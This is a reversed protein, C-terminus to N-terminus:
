HGARNQTMRVIRTVMKRPLFRPFIKMLRNRAGPMILTKGNLFGRYGEEAVQGAEMIAGSQFLKSAGMGSRDVFGTSTLGPCLATVTVGTGSLENELAETFSLVYAKTAYYVSMMPGPFFAVLSAVNMVGGQSRKVMDPVFLKTMITLAKINVDIMNMEQELNTELFTGYLGFGANNVLYDVIIGREKLDTFIEEPVGHSAVDKAIITSRTDYKDKYEKALEVLKSESRAVLVLDYGDKAFRDALEKGIGGSVGTILVTKRM